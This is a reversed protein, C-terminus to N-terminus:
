SVIADKIAKPNWEILSVNWKKMMFPIGGTTEPIRVAVIRKNLSKAVEIEYKVGIANHTNQGILCIILDCKKIKNRLYNKVQKEGKYRLDERERDTTYSFKNNPNNLLGDIGNAYVRDEWKYSIFINIM